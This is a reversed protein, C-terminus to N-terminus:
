VEPDGPGIFYEGFKIGRDAITLYIVPEDGHAGILHETHPDLIDHQGKYLLRDGDALTGQLIFTHEKGAHSHEPFHHGPEIKVFGVIASQSLPVDDIHVLHTGPGPGPFWEDPDSLRALLTSAHSITTELLEALKAAFGQVEDPQNSVSTMLRDLLGVSPAQVPTMAIWTAALAEEAEAVARQLDLDHRLAQEFATAEAEALEGMLWSDIQSIYPHDSM